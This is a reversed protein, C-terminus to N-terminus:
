RLRRGAVDALYAQRLSDASLARYSRGHRHAICSRDVGAQDLVASFKACLSWPSLHSLSPCLPQGPSFAKLHAELPGLIVMQPIHGAAARCAVPLRMGGYRVCLCATLWDCSGVSRLHSELKSFQEDSIPGKNLTPKDPVKIGACPNISLFGCAVAHGFMARIAKLKNDATGPALGLSQGAMWHEVHTSKVQHLELGPHARCFAGLCRKSWNLHSASRKKGRLHELYQGAFAKLLRLVPLEDRTIHPVAHGAAVFVDVILAKIHNWDAKPLSGALETLSRTVSDQGGSAREGLRSVPM